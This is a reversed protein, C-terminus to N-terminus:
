AMNFINKGFLKQTQISVLSTHVTLDMSSEVQSLLLASYVPETLHKEAGHHAQVELALAVAGWVWTHHDWPADRLYAV